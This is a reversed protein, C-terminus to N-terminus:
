RSWVDIASSDILPGFCITSFGLSKASTRFRSVSPTEFQCLGALLSGRFFARINLMEPNTGSQSLPGIWFVKSAVGQFALSAMHGAPAPETQVVGRYFRVLCLSHLHRMAEAPRCEM